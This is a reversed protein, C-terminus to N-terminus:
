FCETSKKAVGFFFFPVCINIVVHTPQIPLTKNNMIKKIKYYLVHAALQVSRKMQTKANGGGM